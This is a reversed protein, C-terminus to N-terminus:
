HVYNQLFCDKIEIMLFKLAFFRTKTKECYNIKCCQFLESFGNLSVTMSDHVHSIVFHYIKFYFYQGFESELLLYLSM